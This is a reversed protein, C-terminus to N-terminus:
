EAQRTKTVKPPLNSTYIEVELVHSYLVMNHLVNLILSPYRFYCTFGSENLQKVIRPKQTAMILSLVLPHQPHM